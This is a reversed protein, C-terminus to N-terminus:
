SANNTSKWLVSDALSASPIASSHNSECCNSKDNDGQLREPPPHVNEYIQENGGDLPMNMLNSLSIITGKM